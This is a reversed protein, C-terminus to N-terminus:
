MRERTCYLKFELSGEKTEDLENTIVYSMTIDTIKKTDRGIIKGTNDVRKPLSSTWTITVDKDLYKTPLEELGEDILLNDTYMGKIWNDVEDLNTGVEPTKGDDKNGDNGKNKNCSTLSMLLILMLIGFTKLHKM